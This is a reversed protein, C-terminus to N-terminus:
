WSSHCGYARTAIKAFGDGHGGYSSELVTFRMRHDSSLWAHADM